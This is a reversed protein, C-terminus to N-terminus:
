PRAPAVPASARSGGRSRASRGVGTPRVSRTRPWASRSRTAASSPGIFRAVDPDVIGRAVLYATAATEDLAHVVLENALLGDLPARGSAIARLEPLADRLKELLRWIGGALDRAGYQVKEFTALEVKL